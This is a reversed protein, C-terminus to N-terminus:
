FTTVKIFDNQSLKSLRLDAGGKIVVVKEELFMKAMPMILKAKGLGRKQM